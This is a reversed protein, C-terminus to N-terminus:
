RAGMSIAWTNGAPQAVPVQATTTTVTTTTHPQPPMGYAPGVPQAMQTGGYMPQAQPVPQPPMGYMPGVPQATQTGPMMGGGGMGGLGGMVGQFLSSPNVSMAQQQLARRAAYRARQRRHHAYMCLCAGICLLPIIIMVAM